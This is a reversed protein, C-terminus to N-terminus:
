KKEIRQALDTIFASEKAVFRAFEASPMGVGELGQADFQQRVDPDAKLTRAARGRAAV